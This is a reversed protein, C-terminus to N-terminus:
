VQNEASSYGFCHIRQYLYLRSVGSACQCLRYSHWVFAAVDLQRIFAFMGEWQRAQDPNQCSLPASIKHVPESRDHVISQQSFWRRAVLIMAVVTTM